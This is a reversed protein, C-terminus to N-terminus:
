PHAVTQGLQFVKRCFQASGTLGNWLLSSTEILRRRPSRSENGAPRYFVAARYGPAVQSDPPKKEGYSHLMGGVQPFCPPSVPEM